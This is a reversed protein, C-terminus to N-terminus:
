RRDGEGRCSPGITGVVMTAASASFPTTTFAFAEFADAFAAVGLVVPSDGFVAAETALDLFDTV